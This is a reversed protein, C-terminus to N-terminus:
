PDETVNTMGVGLAASSDAVILAKRGGRCERLITRSLSSNRHLDVPEDLHKKKGDCNEQTDNGKARKEHGRWHVCL